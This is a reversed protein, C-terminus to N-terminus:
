EDEESLQFGVKKLRTTFRRKWAKLDYLEQKIAEYNACKQVQLRLDVLEQRHSEYVDIKHQTSKDIRHENALKLADDREQELRDILDGMAGITPLLSLIEGVTMQMPDSPAPEDGRPPLVLDLVTSRDQPVVRPPKKGNRAGHAENRHLLIQGRTDATALCDRCGFAQTGNALHLRTFRFPAKGNPLASILEEKVVPIGDHASPRDPEAKEILPTQFQVVAATKPPRGRRRPPEATQQHM